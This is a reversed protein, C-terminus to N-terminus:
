NAQIFKILDALDQPTLGQELGEPMMSLKSSSMSKIDLRRVVDTIGNAQLIRISATTEDSIIGTLNRGDKTDVIYYTYKSEVAANPDLIAVLMAGASKDTLGML